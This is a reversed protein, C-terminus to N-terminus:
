FLHKTVQLLLDGVNDLILHWRRAYTQEQWPFRKEWGNVWGGAEKQKHVETLIYTTNICTHKHSGRVLLLPPHQTDRGRERSFPDRVSNADLSALWCAETIRNNRSRVGASSKYIHTTKRCSQRPNLSLDKHKSLLCEKRGKCGKRKM